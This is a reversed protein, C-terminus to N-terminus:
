HSRSVAVTFDTFLLTFYSTTSSFAVHHIKGYEVSVDSM